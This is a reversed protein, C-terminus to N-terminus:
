LLGGHADGDLVRDDVRGEHLRVLLHAEENKINLSVDLDTADHVM